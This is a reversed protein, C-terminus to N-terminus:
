RRRRKPSSPLTEAAVSLFTATLARDDEGIEAYLQKAKRVIKAEAPARFATEMVQRVLASRSLRANRALRDIQTLLPTPLSLAVKAVAM